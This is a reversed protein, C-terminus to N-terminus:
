GKVCKDWKEWVLHLSQSETCANAQCVLEVQCVTRQQSRRHKWEYAEFWINSQEPHYWYVTMENGTVSWMLEKQNWNPRVALPSVSGWGCHLHYIIYLCGHCPTDQYLRPQIHLVLICPQTAIGILSYNGSKLASFGQKPLSLCLLPNPDRGTSASWQYVDGIEGCGWECGRVGWLQSNYELTCEERHQKRVM